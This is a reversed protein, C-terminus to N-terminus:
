LSARSGPARPPTLSRALLYALLFAILTGVSGAIVTSLIPSAIGPVAYERLPGAVSAVGEAQRAVGLAQLVRELGDPWPSAFPAVFAALGLSVLLGYSAAERYRMGNRPRGGADPEAPAPTLLLEPRSRAVAAVVFTTIAAEGAGILMHVGTMAPFAAAWPVVGSFALEGACAVAAVTTSLWAAFATGVLRARLTGGMARATLRYTGYGVTPALVAMNFLNAGLATVGGDAFLFCQLTLVSTMALVAASPGLLVAALVAGILHGSTGGAVPFNLMQAAFVFAAAVGILPIRSPPLTRRTVHLALGVGAAALAGTAVATKPDLFGDPIHM